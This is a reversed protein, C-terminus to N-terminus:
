KKNGYTKIFIAPNRCLGVWYLKEHPRMKAWEDGDTNQERIDTKFKEEILAMVKPNTNCCLGDWHIKGRNENLLDFASPNRSLKGWDIKNREQDLDLGKEIEIRERLYNIADVSTNESFAQWQIREYYNEYLYKAASPNICLGRWLGDGLHQTYRSLPNTEDDFIHENIIYKDILWKILRLAKSNKALEDWDVKNASDTYNYTELPITDEHGEFGEFRLHEKIIKIAGTNSSLKRWDLKETGHMNFLINPDRLMILREEEFKKIILPMANKQECLTFWEIKSPRAALLNMAGLNPNLGIAAWDLRDNERLRDYELLTLKEEEKIKKIILDIANKNISLSGWHVTNYEGPPMFREDNNDYYRRKYEAASLLKDIKLREEIMNMANENECLPRWLIKEIPIWDRLKYRNPLMDSYDGLLKGKIDSPLKLIMSNTPAKAHARKLMRAPASSPKRQPTSAPTKSPTRVPPASAAKRTLKPTSKEEIGLIRSVVRTKSKANKAYESM